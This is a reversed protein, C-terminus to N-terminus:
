YLMKSIASSFIMGHSLAAASSPPTAGRSSPRADGLQRVLAPLEQLRQAVACVHTVLPVHIASRSGTVTQFDSVKRRIVEEGGRTLVYDKNSYKMECPNVVNDAREERCTTTARRRSGNPLHCPLAMERFAASRLRVAQHRHRNVHKRSANAPEYSPNWLSPHPQLSHGM